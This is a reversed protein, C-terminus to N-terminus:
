RCPWSSPPATGPTTRQGPTAAPSSPAPRTPGTSWRRPPRTTRRTPWCRPSTSGPRRPSRDWLLWAAEGTLTAWHATQFSAGWGGPTVAVHECAISRVLFDAYRIADTAAAGTAGDSHAGTRAAVATTLAAMAPRRIAYEQEARTFRALVDTFPQGRSSYWKELYQAGLLYRESELLPTRLQFVPDRAVAPNAPDYPLAKDLLLSPRVLPSVQNRNAVGASATACAAGTPGAPTTWPM